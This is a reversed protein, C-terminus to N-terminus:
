SQTALYEGPIVPAGTHDYLLHGDSPDRAILRGDELRLNATIYLEQEPGLRFPRFKMADTPLAQIAVRKSLPDQSGIYADTFPPGPFTTREPAASATVQSIMLRLPWRVGGLSKGTLHNFYDIQGNILSINALYGVRHLIGTLTAAIQSPDQDIFDPLLIDEEAKELRNPSPNSEPILRSGVLGGAVVLSGVIFGRRSLRPRAAETAPETASLDIVGDNSARVSEDRHEVFGDDSLIEQGSM